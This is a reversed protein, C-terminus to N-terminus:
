DDSGEDSDPKAKFRGKAASAVAHVGIGAMTATVLTSGIYDASSNVGIFGPVPTDPLRDYFGAFQDWFHPEMCGICGNGCGVCWNQKKNWRTIPCPSHTQPGKCGMKYLCFNKSEQDANGFETVFEGADFHARRECRDHVKEEFAFLPRGDSDVEPTKGFLLYHVVTAVITDPNPPCGAVNITEVGLAEKLSQAGTPNPRMAQVGGFSSCTGVAVTAVANDTVERTYEISTKGAITLAEPIGVAVAGEILALYGGAKITSNFNEEAQKGAAAMITEQYNLSIVDLLIDAIPPDYAKVFSELCGSCAMLNLWIVPPRKAAQELAEAIRPVWAQSLGLLAATGGCWRLFDRRSIDLRM